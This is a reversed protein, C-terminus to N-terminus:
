AATWTFMVNIDYYGNGSNHLKSKREGIRWSPADFMVAHVKMLHIVGDNVIELIYCILQFLLLTLLQERPPVGALAEASAIGSNTFLLANARAIASGSIASTASLALGARVLDRRTVKM